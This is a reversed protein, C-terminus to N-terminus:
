CRVAAVAIVGSRAAESQAFQPTGRSLASAISVLNAVRYAGCGTVEALLLGSNITESLM